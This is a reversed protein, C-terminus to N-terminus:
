APRTTGGAMIRSKWLFAREAESGDSSKVDYEFKNCFLKHQIRSPSILWPFAFVLIVEKAVFDLLKWPVLQLLCSKPPM